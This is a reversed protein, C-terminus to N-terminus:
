KPGDGAGAMQFDEGVDGEDKKSKKNRRGLETPSVERKDDKKLASLTGTLGDIRRLMEEKEKKREEELRSLKELLGENQKRMAGLEEVLKENQRRLAVLEEMM